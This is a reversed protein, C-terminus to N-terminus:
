ERNWESKKHCNPFLVASTKAFSWFKLVDSIWAPKKTITLDYYFWWRRNLYEEATYKLYQMKLLKIKNIIKLSLSTNQMYRCPQICTAATPSIETQGCVSYSLQTVESFCNLHNGHCHPLFKFILINKKNNVSLIIIVTLIPLYEYHLVHVHHVHFTVLPWFWISYVHVQVLSACNRFHMFSGFHLASPM